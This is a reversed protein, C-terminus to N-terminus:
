SKRRRRRAVGHGTAASKLARPQGAGATGSTPHLPQGDMAALFHLTMDSVLSEPLCIAADDSPTADNRRTDESLADFFQNMTRAEELRRAGRTERMVVIEPLPPPKALLGAVYAQGTAIEPEFSPETELVAQIRHWPLTTWAIVGGAARRPVGDDLPAVVALAYPQLGATPVALHLVPVGEGYGVAVISPSGVPGEWRDAAARLSLLASVHRDFHLYFTALADFIAGDATPDVRRLGVFAATPEDAALICAVAQRQFSNKAEADTRFRCECIRSFCAEVLKPVVVECVDSSTLVAEVIPHRM